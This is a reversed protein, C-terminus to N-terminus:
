RQKRRRLRVVSDRITAPSGDPAKIDRLPNDLREDEWEDLRLDLAALVQEPTPLPLEHGEPPPAWSPREAHGVILLTGGPRVAAAATRLVHERPIEVPSHFFFASVLDFTGEPFSTGLDHHQWDIRDGLGREEAEEAARELATPSVDVGTVHWGQQALWLADGGEGCGLDLATGPDLAHAEDVLVANPNGSWVRDHKGYHGEWFSELEAPDAPGAPGHMDVGYRDAVGGHVIMVAATSGAAIANAVTPMTISTDGAASLGPVGTHGSADVEIADAAIPGAITTAGLHEALPSRQHLTVPVLLGACDRREGDALVVASLADGDGELGVVLREEITVEAGHLQNIQHDDLESPGNTFLTVDDSWERLLLARLMGSQGRDLVGLL